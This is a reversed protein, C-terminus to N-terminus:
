LTVVARIRTQRSSTADCAATVRYVALFASQYALQLGSAKAAVSLPLVFWAENGSRAEARLACLDQHQGARTDIAASLYRQRRADRERWDVYPNSHLEPTAVLRRGGAMVTYTAPEKVPPTRIQTVFLDTPRTNSLIWRYTALDFAEGDETATMRAEADYPRVFLGTGATLILAGAVSIALAKRLTNGVSSQWYLHAGRWVVHGILCAWAAQLYLHFHHAPVVFVECAPGGFQLTTCAAHRLLFITCVGIWTLIIVTARRSLPIRGRLLWTAGLALVGPVNMIATKRFLNYPDLLPETWSGAVANLIHLHYQFALPGLFAAGIVVETGAAVALWALTRPRLGHEDIVMVGVIASLLIAPVTHALFVLGLILGIFIADALRGSAGHRYVIWVGAFFFVLGLNPTFLWPTYDAAMWPPVYRDGLWLGADGNVLVFAGTALAAAPMEQLSANMVFFALPVLLALWPGASIWFSLPSVGSLHIGLALLIHILPPYWRWAGAYFPDGFWNGDLLGQTFGIDRFQDSDPPVIAGRTAYLGYLLCLVLLLGVAIVAARDERSLPLM